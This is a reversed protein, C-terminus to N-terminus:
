VQVSYRMAQMIAVNLQVLSRHSSYLSRYRPFLLIFLCICSLALVHEQQLSFKQIDPLLDRFAVSTATEVAQLFNQISIEEPDLARLTGQGAFAPSVSLATLLLLRVLM